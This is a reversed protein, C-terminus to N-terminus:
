MNAIRHEAVLAKCICEIPGLEEGCYPCFDIKVVGSRPFMRHALVWRDDGEPQVRCPMVRQCKHEYNENLPCEPHHQEGDVHKWDERTMGPPYNM